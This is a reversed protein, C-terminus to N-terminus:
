ALTKLLIDCTTEILRATAARSTTRAWVPTYNIAGYICHLAVNPDDSSFEGAEIGDAIVARFVDDHEKRLRRILKLHDAPWDLPQTFFRGADRYDVLLITLQDVMLAQLREAASLESTQAALENLRTNVERGVFELTAAVLEDKSGYYHYLTAKTLDVKEAVADLNMAHYGDENLVAAAAMLIERMKQTRKRAVRDSRPGAADKARATTM